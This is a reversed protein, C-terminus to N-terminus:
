VLKFNLKELKEVIKEPKKASVRFQGSRNYEPAVMIYYEFIATFHKKTNGVCERHVMFTKGNIVISWADKWDYRFQIDNIKEVTNSLM